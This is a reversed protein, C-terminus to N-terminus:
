RKDIENKIMNLFDKIHEGWEDVTQNSPHLLSTDSDSNCFNTPPLPCIKCGSLLPPKIQRNCFRCLNCTTWSEKEWGDDYIDRWKQYVSELVELPINSLRLREVESM